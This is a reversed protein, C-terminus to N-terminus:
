TDMPTEKFVQGFEAAQRKQEIELMKRNKCLQEVRNVLKIIQVSHTDSNGSAELLTLM